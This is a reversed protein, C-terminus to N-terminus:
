AGYGYLLFPEIAARYIHLFLLHHKSFFRDAVVSLRYSLLDVGRRVRNFHDTFTLGGDWWVGLYRISKQVPLLQGQLSVCPPDLLSLRGGYTIPMLVSKTLSFTLKHQTAWQLLSRIALVGRQELDVKTPGQVILVIDDAFAQLTCGAPLQVAFITDLVVNWFFPGSCSGQPVGREAPFTWTEDNFCYTVSRDRFYDKILSFLNSPCRALTLQYLVSQRWVTDFAGEVDLSILCVRNKAQLANHVELWLSHNATECSRGARFGHQRDHLLGKIKFMHTLRQTILKDLLKSIVSLLCIPRYNKAITHDRDPKGILILKANKWSKPFFGLHLCSNLLTLLTAPCHKNISRLLEVSINDMGPTKRLRLTHLAARIEEASFPPDLSSEAYTSVAARISRQEPTETHINDCPFLQQIIVRITDHITTTLVGNHDRVRQLLTPTRLKKAALRYPLQFPNRKTLQLCLEHFSARSKCKILYKYRAQERKYVM